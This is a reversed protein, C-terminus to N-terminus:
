WGLQELTGHTASVLNTLGQYEVVKQPSRMRPMIDTGLIASIRAYPTVEVPKRKGTPHVVVREFVNGFAIRLPALEEDTLSPNSLAAVMKELDKRFREIMAPHLAVVNDGGGGDAKVIELKNALGARELELAKLKEKLPALPLDPDTMATVIRSIKEEARHLEAEVKDRDQRSASQRASWEKHAGATFQALAEVDISTKIGNLVTAEIDILNYSKVNTCIGRVIANTCGVRTKEGPKSYNIKMEGGCTVCSLRGVLMHRSATKKYVTYGTGVRNRKARLAQARDWLDQDIIRLHPVQVVLLDEPKGARKNRKDTDPNMVTRNKNWVLEGIYIRNGLIGKGSGGGAGFAQHNWLGGAPSPIGDANLRAAIDRLPVMNVYETFIRIIIAAKEPDIEREFSTNPVKRHGYAPRGPMLGDKVRGDWARRMMNGLHKRFEQNMIGNMGVRMTDLPGELAILEVQRHAIRKFDRASDALDRSMRSLSEIIVADFRREKSAVERMLGLWGARNLTGAGGIAEDKYYAVIQYGNQQAIKRCLEFQDDISRPSQRESSYRAYAVAPKLEAM